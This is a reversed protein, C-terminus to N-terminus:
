YIIILNILNRLVKNIIGKICAVQKLKSLVVFKFSSVGKGKILFAIYKM